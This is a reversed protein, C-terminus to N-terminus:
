DKPSLVWSDKISPPLTKRAAKASKYDPYSSYSIRYKEHSQIIAVDKFGQEHYKAVAKKADVENFYTAIILNYRNKQSKPPKAEPIVQHIKETKQEVQALKNDPFWRGDIGESITIPRAPDKASGFWVLVYNGLCSAGIANWEMNKWEDKNEIFDRYFQNNTWISMVTDLNPTNNEWFSIEHGQAPYNTLEKPKNRSIGINKNVANICGGTWLDSDSWSSLNCIGTDPQNTLLDQNHLYAVWSLSTSFTIKPLNHEHRYDNIMDIIRKARADIHFDAPIKEQCFSDKQIGLTFLFILIFLHKFGSM